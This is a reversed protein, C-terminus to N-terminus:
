NDGHENSETLANILEAQQEMQRELKTLRRLFRINSKEQNAQMGLLLGSLRVPNLSQSPPTYINKSLAPFLEDSQGPLYKAQIAANSKVFGQMIRERLELSFLGSTDYSPDYDLMVVSESLATVFRRKAADGAKFTRANSILSLVDYPLGPNIAAPDIEFHEPDISLLECFDRAIGKEAIRDYVRVQLNEEGFASSWDDLIDLYDLLALRPRHLAYETVDADLAIQERKVEECFSSAIVNDQRRIYAVVKVTFQEKLDAALKAPNIFWFNESSMVVTAVATENSESALKQWLADRDIEPVGASQRMSESYAYAFLHSSLQYSGTLPYLIGSELLLQRNKMLFHQLATSGTKPRGIHLFLTPKM